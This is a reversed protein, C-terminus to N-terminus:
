SWNYQKLIGHILDPDSPFIGVPKGSRIENELILKWPGIKTHFSLVARYRKKIDTFFIELENSELNQRIKRFERYDIPNESGNLISVLNLPIDPLIVDAEKIIKEIIIGSIWPTPWPIPGRKAPAIKESQPKPRHPPAESLFSEIKNPHPFHTGLSVLTRGEELVIENIRPSLAEKLYYGLDPNTLRSFEREFDELIKRVQKHDGKKIRFLWECALIAFLVLGPSVNATEIKKLFENFQEPNIRRPNDAEDRWDHIQDIAWLISEEPVQLRM